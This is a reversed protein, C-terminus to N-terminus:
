RRPARSFRSVEVAWQALADLHGKAPPRGLAAAVKPYAPHMDHDAGTVLASLLPERTRGSDIRILMATQKGRDPAPLGPPLQKRIQAWTLTTGTIAANQLIFKVATTVPDLEPRDSRDPNRISRPKAGTNPRTAPRAPGRTTRTWKAVTEREGASIAKGAGSAAQALRETLDRVERRSLKGEGQRLQKLLRRVDAAAADRTNAERNKTAKKEDRLQNLVRQARAARAARGNQATERNTTAKKPRPQVTRHRRADRPTDQTRTGEPHDQERLYARAAALVRQESAGAGRRTLSIAQQLRSRVDWARQEFVAKELEAFLARQYDEHTALWALADTLAEQAAARAPPTLRQLFPGSGECLRRVHEVTGTRRAAELGRIFTAVSEPMAEHHRSPGPFAGVTSVSRAGYEDRLQSAAPTVLGGDTWTCESFPVWETPRASSQTGVWVRRSAGDSECRVRYVYPCNSLRGPDLILGPGLIVTRGGTWEPPVSDDMHIRVRTGDDLDVDLLSGIPPPFAFRAGRGHDLLSRSMAAKVYLHDASSEGVAPRRCTHLTGGTQPFHQFHCQRDAYMKSALQAGCGGLLLGCWFTDRKHASRFVDLEIAEPPLVVPVDSHENGIVATQVLRTDRVM